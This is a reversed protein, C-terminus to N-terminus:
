LAGLLWVIGAVVLVAVVLGVATIGGDNNGGYYTRDSADARVVPPEPPVNPAVGIGIAALGMITLTIFEAATMRGDTLSSVVAQGVAGAFAAGIKALHNAPFYVGASTALAVVITAFEVGGLPRGASLADSLSYLVSLLVGGLSFLLARYKLTVPILQEGSTTPVTM